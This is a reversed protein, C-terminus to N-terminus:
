VKAGKLEVTLDWRDHIIQPSHTAILVDFSALETINKLDGLFQKQWAVHLSLEPEDILLLSDRKVKFLLQYLLVIEHQEGSSLASLPLIKGDFTTFFFGKKKTIGMKKHTYEIRKNIIDKFLKLKNALEDFVSLKEEMDKVYVALINKTDEIDKPLFEKDEEKNLLGVDQLILRKAEIKELKRLLENASIHSKPLYESIRTPFTRDLQQSLNAFEALKAEIIAALEKSYIEVAPRWKYVLSMGGNVVKLKLRDEEILYVEMPKPLNKYYTDENNNEVSLVNANDFVVRLKEFPVKKLESYKGNFLGALMKLILTKGYGNPSHIITIRDDLNLPITHDFIGFLKKISIEKIRM